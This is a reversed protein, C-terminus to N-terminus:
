GRFYFPKPIFYKYYLNIAENDTMLAIFDVICRNEDEDPKYNIRSFRDFVIHINKKLFYYLELLINSAKDMESQIYPHRYVNDFLFSRLTNMLKMKEHSIKIVPSNLSNEIVDRVLTNIRRSHTEGMGERVNEPIDKESIIKSRIADDLDHNLYAIVDSVRVVQGELTLPMDSSIIKETKGTKSHKRIGDIVDPTLNLGTMNKELVQLVRVSQESHKFNKDIEKQILFEGSHGFPTHGVDHGLAIAETLDENLFLARSITRAIQSVELTHTLRTRYVDSTPSLFVQTKHKLRRFAESHVIRDRDRMFETRVEDKQEYVRRPSANKSLKAFKSLTKQENEEIMERINM